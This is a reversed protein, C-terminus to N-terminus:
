SSDDAVVTLAARPDNETGHIAETNIDALTKAAESLQAGLKLRSLAGIGMQSEDERISKEFALALAYL